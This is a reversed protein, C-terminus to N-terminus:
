NGMGGGAASGVGGDNNENESKKGYITKIYFDSSNTFFNNKTNNITNNITTIFGNKNIFPM